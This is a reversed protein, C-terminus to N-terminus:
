DMWERACLRGVMKINKEHTHSAALRPEWSALDTALHRNCTRPGMNNRPHRACVLPAGVAHSGDFRLSSFTRRMDPAFVSRRLCVYARCGIIRGTVFGSLSSGCDM